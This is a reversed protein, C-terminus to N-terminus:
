NGCNQIHEEIDKNRCISCCYKKKLCFSCVIYNKNDLNKKCFGCTYWSVNNIENDSFDLEDIGERIRKKNIFSRESENLKKSESNNESDYDSIEIVNEDKNNKEFENM